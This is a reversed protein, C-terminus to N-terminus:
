FYTLSPNEIHNSLCVPPIAHKETSELCQGWLVPGLQKYEDQSLMGSLAVLLELIKSVLNDKLSSLFITKQAFIEIIEANREM